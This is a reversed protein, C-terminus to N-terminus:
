IVEQNVFFHISSGTVRSRGSHYMVALWVAQLLLIMGPHWLAELGVALRPAPGAPAPWILAMLGGYAIAGLAMWQYATLRGGGRHDARLFESFVRWLQTVALTTLLGAAFMGRLHLYLGVAGAAACIGATLAQVPVVPEGELGGAYAIKKTAGSFVLARGRFIRQVLPSCQALPKGYCCGFSICALRGLGEGWAYAAVLASLVPTVALGAADDGLLAGLIWVLWPAALLACFFAGAVTLTAAKKEVWRAVLSSAPLALAFLPAALALIVPRGLGLAGLLLILVGLALLAAWASIFGYYTLNLGLWGGNGDPRSPLAALMQWRAGPLRRCALILVLGFLGSLGAALLLDAM